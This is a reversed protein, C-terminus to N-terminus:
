PNVGLVAGLNRAGGTEGRGREPRLSPGEESYWDPILFSEEGTIVHPTIMIILETRMKTDQSNRFFFGLFPIKGLIPVRRENRFQDVRKLGGIVITEDSAALVTTTVERTTFIPLETQQQNLGFTVTQMGRVVTLQPHIDMEVHINDDLVRPTVEVLVGIKKFTIDAVANSGVLKATQFPVEDGAHITAKKGSIVRIEPNAYVSALGETVLAQIVLDIYGYPDHGGVKLKDFIIQGGRWTQGALDGVAGTFGPAPFHSRAGEIAANGHGFDGQVARDPNGQRRQYFWDAGLVKTVDGAVEAVKVRIRVQKPLEQADAGRGLLVAAITCVSFVRVVRLRRADAEGLGVM